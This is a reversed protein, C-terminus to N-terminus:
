RPSEAFDLLTGTRRPIPTTLRIRMDKGTGVIAFEPWLKVFQQFSMRMNSLMQKFGQKQLMLKSAQSISINGSRAVVEKLPQLFERSNVRRRDDRPKSGGEFPKSATSTADVPLVLRTNYTVGKTDQVVGGSVSEIVHVDNSWNPVGKRRKIAFPQLLTRFAGKETLKERRANAMQANEFTDNANEMRLQFRLEDNGKVEGPANGHLASHDLKNYAKIVPDLHTLWTGDLETTRKALMDKIVGIARDITAIDNLGVKTKHLINRRALMSQFEKSMFESGNDTNLERPRRGEDLISEFASRTWSKTPLPVAWLYRSFMDQVLLVHRYIKDSTAPKSEFSILDAAWRDDISAATINGKYQPPPQLVQRSTSKSTINKIDTLSAKFGEKRLAAQLRNASPFALEVQLYALRQEM